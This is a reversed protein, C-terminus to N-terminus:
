GPHVLQNTMHDIRNDVVAQRSKVVCVFKRVWVQMKRMRDSRNPDAEVVSFKQM